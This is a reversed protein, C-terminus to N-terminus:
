DEEIIDESRCQLAACVLALSTRNPATHQTYWKCITQPLICSMEALETITRIGQKAMAVKLKERSVYRRKFVVHIKREGEIPGDELIDVVSCHLADAIRNLTSLMIDAGSNHKWLNQPMMHLAECLEPDSRYGAKVALESIKDVSLRM